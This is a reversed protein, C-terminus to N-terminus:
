IEKCLDPDGHVWHCIQAYKPPTIRVAVNFDRQQGGEMEVWQHGSFVGIVRRQWKGKRGTDEVEKRLRIYIGAGTAGPEADCHQYMLDDSEKEVSCFRYVVTEDGLLSKDDDFGSFHIRTLPATAPAVGLKMYKQKVPRKLELLAYDYDSSVSSTTHDTHIWGQPIQTQKIRTWRFVPQKRPEISRRARSFGRQKGKGGRDFENKIRRHAVVDDNQRRGKHRRGKGGGRGGRVADRDISNQEEGEEMIQQEGKEEGTEGQEKREGRRRGGRRRGRRGRKTKMQLVGVRLGNFQELYDTGNHICHAATLVHKPSILVGSCNTSLRVAASFPYNTIYHSDSIVFRGDAGYVQRKWRTKTPSSASLGTSTKNFGQFSIDTHTLTGNEHMTEYGLIRQQESQGMPLLSSQCEIGCISKTGGNEEDEVQGRFLPTDLLQTHVDLLVPLSQKTWRHAESNGDKGFVGSDTLGAACLLLCLIHKLGM